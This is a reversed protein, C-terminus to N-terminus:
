MRGIHCQVALNAVKILYIYIYIIKKKKKKIKKKKHFLYPPVM